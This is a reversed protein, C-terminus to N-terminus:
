IFKLKTLTDGQGTSRVFVVCNPINRYELCSITPINPRSGFTRGPGTSGVASVVDSM